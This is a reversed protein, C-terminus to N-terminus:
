ARSTHSIICRTALGHTRQYSRIGNINIIIIIIIIIFANRIHVFDAILVSGFPGNTALHCCHYTNVPPNFHPNSLRRKFTMGLFGGWAMSVLYSFATKGLERAVVSLRNAACCVWYGTNGAMMMMMLSVSTTMWWRYMVPSCESRTYMYCGVRLIRCCRRTIAASNISSSAASRTRCNNIHQHVSEAVAESWREESM